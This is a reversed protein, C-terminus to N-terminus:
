QKGRASARVEAAHSGTETITTTDADNGLTMYEFGWSTMNAGGVSDANAHLIVTVMDLNLSDATTIGPQYKEEYYVVIYPAEGAGLSWISRWDLGSPEVNKHDQRDMMFLKLSDGLANQIGTKGDATFLRSYFVGESSGSNVIFPETYKVVNPYAVDGAAHGTFETLWVSDISGGTLTAELIDVTDNGVPNTTLWVNLYASDVVGGQIASLDFVLGARAMYFYGVAEYTGINASTTSFAYGMTDARTTAYTPTEHARFAGATTLSTDNIVSPDFWVSDGAVITGLMVILSDATFQATFDVAEKKKNWAKLKGLRMREVGEISKIVAGDSLVTKALAGILNYKWALRTPSKSTLILTEKVGSSTIDFEVDIGATSSDPIFEVSTGLREYKYKGPRTKSYTVEFRGANVKTDYDGAKSAGLISTETFRYPVM